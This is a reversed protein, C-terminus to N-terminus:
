EGWGFFMGAQYVASAVLWALLTLTGWQAAAFCWSGSERAAVALTAMCPMGILCFLIVCVGILPSYNRALIERLSDANEEEDGVKYVIGMQAVFVEKAAFAGLLSTGIKWDFGMPRLLPELAHGCRGIFSRELEAERKQRDATDLSLQIEAAAAENPASDLEAAIENREREFRDSEESSLKPFTAMAWLIISIALIVTGVKKLYLWARHVTQAGVTRLGPRHYAPLELILSNAGGRYVTSRLTKALLVALLVGTMYILWLLPASWAPPFFAPLLLTYIPLRAGCSMLPIIFITTLRDRRDELTRTAMIAPVSCGFGILLPVFSNGPLGIRKLFRNMLFAARAMYGSDELLSIALFLFVINPLFVLVGGAGGIVGDVLFSCLLSDPNSAFLSKIGDSLAGFGSEIWGMPYEGFTFTLQFVVYMLVFFIPLGFYRHTLVADLRDSFSPKESIKRSIAGSCFAEIKQFRAAAIKEPFDIGKEAGEARIRDVAARIEPADLARPASEEGELRKVAFFRLNNEEAADSTSDSHILKAADLEKRKPLAAIIEAIYKETEPGYDVVFTPRSKNKTVAFQDLAGSVKELLRRVDAPNSGVTRVAAAGFREAIREADIMWGRREAIDSMNFVLLLPMGLEALEVTMQLNRELNTSDLVNLVLDPPENRLSDIVVREDASWATLSYTGPLDIFVITKGNIEAKGEVREVTVGPYNGIHQRAGTLHNFLTSKGCNPNGALAVRYTRNEM